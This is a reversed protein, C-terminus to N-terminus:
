REVATDPDAAEVLVCDALSVDYHRRRLLEVEREAIVRGKEVVDTQEHEVFPVHNAEILALYAILHLNLPKKATGIRVSAPDYAKRRDKGVTIL